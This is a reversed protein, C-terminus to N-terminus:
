PGSRTEPTSEPARSLTFVKRIWIRSFADAITLGQAGFEHLKSTRYSDRHEDSPEAFDCALMPTWGPDASAPFMWSDDGPEDATWTWSGDDASLIYIANESPASVETHTMTAEDHVAAFMLVGAEPDPNDVRLGIVHEGFELMPRGSRPPVGDLTLRSEGTTALWLQVPITRHRNTWRLVVGGCGAPVECHGHEELVVHPSRKSYRAISNLRLDRDSM